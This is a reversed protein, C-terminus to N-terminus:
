AELAEEISVYHNIFDRDDVYVKIQTGEKIKPYSDLWFTDSKFKYKMGTVEDTYTCYVIYPHEHKKGVSIKLEKEVSDVVAYIYNGFELLEKKKKRNKYEPYFLFIGLGLSLVGGFLGGAINIADQGIIKIDTPNDPNVLIDVEEGEYMGAIYTGLNVYEYIEANYIYDVYVDYNIEGGRSSESLSNKGVSIKSIEATVEDFRVKNMLSIVFIVVSMVFCVIGILIFVSSALYLSVNSKHLNKKM